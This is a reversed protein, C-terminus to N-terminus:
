RGILYSLEPLRSTIVVSADYTVYHQSLLAPESGGMFIGKGLFDASIKGGFIGQVNGWSFILGGM